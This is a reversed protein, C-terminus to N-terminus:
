ICWKEPIPKPLARYVEIGYRGLDQMVQEVSFRLGKYNMAGYMNKPSPSVWLARPYAFEARYGRSGEIVRGWLSVQGIVDTAKRFPLEHFLLEISKTAYIGCTCRISPAVHKSGALFCTAHLPRGKPWLLDECSPWRALSKLCVEGREEDWGLLWIRWGIIPTAWFTDTKTVNRHAM